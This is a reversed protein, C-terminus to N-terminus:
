TSGSTAGPTLPLILFTLEEDREGEELWKPTEEGQKMGNSPIFSRLLGVRGREWTLMWTSLSNIFKCDNLVIVEYCKKHIFHSRNRHSEGLYDQFFLITCMLM